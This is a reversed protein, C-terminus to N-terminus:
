RRQSDKSSFGLLGRCSSLRNCISIALLAFFFIFWYLLLDYTIYINPNRRLVSREKYSVNLSLHQCKDQLLSKRYEVGTEVPREM